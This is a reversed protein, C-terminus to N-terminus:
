TGSYDIVTDNSEEINATTHAVRNAMAGNLALLNIAQKLVEGQANIGEVKGNEDYLIAEDNSKTLAPYMLRYSAKLPIKIRDEVKLEPNEVDLALLDEPLEVGLEQYKSLLEQKIIELRKKWKGNKDNFSQM